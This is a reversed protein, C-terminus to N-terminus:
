ATKVRVIQATQPPKAFIEGVIEAAKEDRGPVMHAYMDLTISASSHGLRAQVTKVDVGHAILQTAQTHRLEHFKVGPMGAEIRFRRWWNSFNHVDMYGGTSSCCVPTDDSQRLGLKVLQAAQERKWRALSRATGDDISVTRVSSQTKPGKVGDKDSVSQVVEIRHAGLDVSGWVIGLVEGRRMGTALGIRVAVVNGVRNMGHMQTRNLANGRRRQRAEKECLASYERAEEREVFALLTAGESESLSRREPKDKKPATVRDCPNRAIMDYDVAKKLVQSLTKHIGNMTTGSCKGNKRTKEDRIATYAREITQPTLEGLPADGIFEYLARLHVGITCLRANGVEGAARRAELWEDAFQRFTVDQKEECGGEEHERRMEDRERRADAKTGRVVKSCKRYKGTVPDKGLSIQVEWRGRGRAIICGDGNTM